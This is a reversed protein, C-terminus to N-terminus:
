PSKFDYGLNHYSELEDVLFALLNLDLLEVKLSMEVIEPPPVKTFNNNNM